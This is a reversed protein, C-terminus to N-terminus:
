RLLQLLSQEAQKTSALISQGFSQQIQLSSTKAAVGTADAGVLDRSAQNLLKVLSANFDKRDQLMAQFSAVQTLGSQTRALANDIKGIATTLCPLNDDNTSFNRYTDLANGCV